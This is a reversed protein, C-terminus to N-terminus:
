QFLQDIVDLAGEILIQGCDSAFPSSAREYSYGSEKYAQADPYYGEHGNTCATVLTLPVKSKEVVDMGISAFPEGPMGVLAIDGIRLGSIRLNFFEPRSLNAVIRLAEQAKMPYDKLEPAHIGSEKYIKTIEQAMPLQAPDYANKGIQVYKCCYSLTQSAVPEASDYIRLVEAAVKRALKKALAPGKVRKKNSMANRTGCNGECGLLFMSHVQHDLANDLTRVLYGPWDPTYKTGGIMDAHTAFSVILIEKGGERQVRIVFVREDPKGIPCVINPDGLSPNTRATGDAMRYRRVFATEEAKGTAVQLSCPKLDEFAFQACDCFQQYLRLMFIDLDDTAEGIPLIRFSTHSHVCNIYIADESIGCRAAVKKKIIEFAAARIGISECNFVVAKQDGCVFAAARLLLETEVGDAYRPHYYGPINLGMPPTVDIAHFGAYMTNDM